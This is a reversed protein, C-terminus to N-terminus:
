TMIEWYMLTRPSRIGISIIVLPFKLTYIDDITKTKLIYNSLSQFLESHFILFYILNLPRFYNTSELTCQAIPGWMGVGIINSESM